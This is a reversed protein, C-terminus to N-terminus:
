EHGQQNAESQSEPLEIDFDEALEIVQISLEEDESSGEGSEGYADEPAWDSQPRRKPLFSVWGGRAM